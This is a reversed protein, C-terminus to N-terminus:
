PGTIIESNLFLIKEILEVLKKIFYIHLLFFFDSNFLM